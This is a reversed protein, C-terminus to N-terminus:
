EGPIRKPESAVFDLVLGYWSQGSDDVFLMDEGATIYMEQELMQGGYPFVVTHSEIPSSVAEYLRNYDDKDLLDTDLEITYNYFTGIVDRIMLGSQARGSKDSDLVAFKRKLSRVVVNYSVGDITFVSNM